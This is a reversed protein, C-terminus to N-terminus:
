HNYLIKCETCATMTKMLICFRKSINKCNEFWKQLSPLVTCTITTICRVFELNGIIMVNKFCKQFKSSKDEQFLAIAIIIALLNFCAIIHRIQRGSSTRISPGYYYKSFSVERTM